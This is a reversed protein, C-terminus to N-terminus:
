HNACPVATVPQIQEALESADVLVRGHIKYKTLKEATMWRRVTNPDVHAVAAAQKVTLYTREM